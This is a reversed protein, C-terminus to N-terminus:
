RYLAPHPHVAKVPYAFPGMKNPPVILLLLLCACFSVKTYAELMRRYGCMLEVISIANQQTCVLEHQTHFCTKTLLFHM